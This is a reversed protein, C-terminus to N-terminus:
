ARARRLAALEQNRERVMDQLEDIKDRLRRVEAPEAPPAEAPRPRARLEARADELQRELDKARQDSAALQSRLHDVVGQLHTRETDETQKTAAAQMALGLVRAPEDKISGGVVVGVRASAMDVLSMANQGQYARPLYMCGRLLLLGLAPAVQSMASAFDLAASGSSDRAAREACSLLQDLADPAREEMAIGVLGPDIQRLFSETRVAPAQRKVVDFRHGGYARVVLKYRCLDRQNRPLLVRTDLEALFTEAVEWASADVLRDIAAILAHDDLDRPGRTALQHLSAGGVESPVPRPNLRVDHAMMRELEPGHCQKFKKGSQCPCPQNRSAKQFLEVTTLPAVNIVPQSPFLEDLVTEPNKPRDFRAWLALLDRPPQVVIHSPIQARLPVIMATLYADGYQAELALIAAYEQVARRDYLYQVVLARAQVVARARYAGLGLKAMVGLVLAILHAGVEGAPFMSRELLDVLMEVRDGDCQRILETVVVPDRLRPITAAVAPRPVELGAVARAFL